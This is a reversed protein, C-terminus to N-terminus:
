LRGSEPDGGSAAWRALHAAGAGRGLTEEGGDAEPVTALAGARHSAARGFPTVPVVEESSRSAGGELQPLDALLLSGSGDDDGGGEEGEEVERAAQARLAELTRTHLLAAAYLREFQAGTQECLGRFISDRQLLALPTDFEAVRGESMVLIRDSDIIQLRAPM